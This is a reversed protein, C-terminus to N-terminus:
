FIYFNNLVIDQIEKAEAKTNCYGTIIFANNHSAINYVILYKNEDSNTEVLALCKNYEGESFDFEVVEYDATAENKSYQTQLDAKSKHMLEKINGFNPLDVEDLHTSTILMNNKQFVTYTDEEVGGWNEDPFGVAYTTDYSVFLKEGYEKELKAVEKKANALREKKEEASFTAVEYKTEAEPQTEEINTTKENKSEAEISDTTIETTTDEVIETTSETTNTATKACGSMCLILGTLVYCIIKKKM